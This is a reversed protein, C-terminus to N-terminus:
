EGAEKALLQANHLTDLVETVNKARSDNWNEVSMYPPNMVYDGRLPLCKAVYRRASAWEHLDCHEGDIVYNSGAQIVRSGLAIALAGTICVEGTLTNLPKGRTWGREVIIEQTRALAESPKM